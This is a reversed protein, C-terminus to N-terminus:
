VTLKYQTKTRTLLCLFALSVFHRFTVYSMSFPVTIFVLHYICHCLLSKRQLHQLSFRLLSNGRFRLYNQEWSLDRHMPAAKLIECALTVSQHITDPFPFFILNRKTNTTHNLDVFVCYILSRARILHFYVFNVCDSEEPTLFILAELKRWKNEWCEWNWDTPVM